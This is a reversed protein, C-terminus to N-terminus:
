WTRHPCTATQEEPVPPVIRAAETARLPPIFPATASDQAIGSASRGSVPWATCRSRSDLSRASRYSCSVRRSGRITNRTDIATPVAVDCVPCGHARFLTGAVVTNQVLCLFVRAFQLQTDDGDPSCRPLTQPSLPQVPRRRTGQTLPPSQPSPGASPCLLTTPCRRGDSTSRAWSNAKWTASHQYMGPTKATLNTFRQHERHWGNNSNSPLYRLDVICFVPRPPAWPFKAPQAAARCCFPLSGSDAGLVPAQPAHSCPVRVALVQRRCLLVRSALLMRSHSIQSRSPTTKVRRQSDVWGRTSRSSPLHPCITLRAFSKSRSRLKLAM